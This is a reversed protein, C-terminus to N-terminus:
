GIFSPIGLRAAAPDACSAYSPPIELRGGPPMGDPPFAIKLLDEQAPHAPVDFGAARLCNGMEDRVEQVEAQTPSVHDLWLPRIVGVFEKECRGLLDTAAKPDADAPFKPLYQYEGRATLKPGPGPAGGQKSPYETVSVGGENYCRVTSFVAAEYEAFTVSGDKLIDKEYASAGASLQKVQEPSLNLVPVKAGTTGPRATAIPAMVDGGSSCAAALSIISSAVLLAPIRIGLRWM